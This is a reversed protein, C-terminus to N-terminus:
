IIKRKIKKTGKIQPGLDEENKSIESQVRKGDDKQKIVNNNIEFTEIYEKESM